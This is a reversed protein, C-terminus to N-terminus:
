SFRPELFVIGMGQDCVYVVRGKITLPTVGDNNREPTIIVETGVPLRETDGALLFLGGDGVDRTVLTQPNGAAPKVSVHLSDPSRQNRRKEEM